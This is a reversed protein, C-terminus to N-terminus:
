VSVRLSRLLPLSARVLSRLCDGLDVALDVGLPLPQLLADLRIQDGLPDSSATM